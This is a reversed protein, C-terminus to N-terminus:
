SRAPDNPVTFPDRCIDSFYPVCCRQTDSRARWFPLRHSIILASHPLCRGTHTRANRTDLVYSRSVYQHHYSQWRKLSVRVEATKTEQRRARHRVLM